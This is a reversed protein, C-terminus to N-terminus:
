LSGRRLNHEGSLLSQSLPLLSGLAPCPSHSIPFSASLISSTHRLQDRRYAVPAQNQLAEQSTKHFTNYFLRDPFCFPFANIWHNPGWQDNTAGLINQRRAKEVGRAWTGPVYSAAEWEKSDFCDRARLHSSSTTCYPLVELSGTPLQDQATALAESSVHLVWVSCLLLFCDRTM